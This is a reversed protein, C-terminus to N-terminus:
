SATRMRPREGVELLPTVGRTFIPSDLPRARSPTAAITRGIPALTGPSVIAHQCVNMSKRNSRLGGKESEVQFFDCFIQQLGHVAFWRFLRRM